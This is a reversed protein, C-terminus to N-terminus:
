RIARKLLLLAINLAINPLFIPNSPAAIPATAVSPFISLILSSPLASDSFNLPRPSLRLNNPSFNPKLKVRSPSCSLTPLPISPKVASVLPSKSVKVSLKKSVAVRTPVNPKSIAGPGNKFAMLPIVKKILFLGRKLPKNARPAPTVAPLASNM